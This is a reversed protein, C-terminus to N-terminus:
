NQAELVGCYLIARAAGFFPSTKFNLIKANYCDYYVNGYLPIDPVLENWRIMYAAFWKNYETTDGPKVSYVMAFSIYNMGLKGGSKQMAQDYTLGQNAKDPTNWKFDADYPDSLKNTSYGFYAEYLPDTEDIWNYSYDYISSNWGTALNFMSYTPTGSFTGRRYINDLLVAFEGTTQTLGIGCELLATGEIYKTKLLASVENVTAFWNIVCPMYYDDGVKVTKYETGDKFNANTNSVSKYDIFWSSNASSVEEATLKRYRIGTGSYPTGDANYTWGDAELAQKAKATSVAYTNLKSEFLTQNDQYAQFNVSYPGHVVSGFGGCFTTAFNNRDLCYAFAQRVGVSKAPGFDCDFQVKGYGARDYNVNKFKGGKAFALATNVPGSGTLSSLVDIEGGGLQGFQTEEVVKRYVINEVHPKQGEYNGKFNPNIKLTVEWNTSDYNTITYPGSYPYTKTDIEAAKIHDAKTYDKGSKAYWGDTLYAGNGDDKVEVGDGLVLKLPNCGIAGLTDAFYYPYNDSNVEVSFQYEGLLRLGAFTKSAGSQGDNTGDYKNFAPWGVFSYGAREYNKAAKSVPSSMALTYALYDVAKIPSGDSYTLGENITITIKFTTSGDTHKIEQETHEKVATKNWVYTGNKDSEMTAYGVTLRNIDQDAANASSAGLGPWRFYGSVQTSNGLIVQGGVKFDNYVRGDTPFKSPDVPDPPTPRKCGAFGAMVSLLLCFALVLSIILKTKKM